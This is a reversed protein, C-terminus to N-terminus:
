TDLSYWKKSFTDMTVRHIRNMTGTRPIMQIGPIREIVVKGLALTLKAVRSTSHLTSWPKDIRQM